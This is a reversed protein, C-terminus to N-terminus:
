GELRTASARESLLGHLAVLSPFGVGLTQLGWKVADDGLGERQAVRYAYAAEAVHTVVAVAFIGRTLKSRSRSAVIGNVVLGGFNTVWWVPAVPVFTDPASPDPASPDTEPM